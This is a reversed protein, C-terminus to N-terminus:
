QETKINNKRYRIKKIEITNKMYELDPMYYKPANEAYDIYTCNRDIKSYFAQKKIGLIKLASARNCWYEYGKLTYNASSNIPQIHHHYKELYENTSVASYYVRLETTDDAFVYRKFVQALTNFDINFIKALDNKTLTCDPDDRMNENKARIQMAHMGTIPRTEEYRGDITKNPNEDVVYNIARSSKYDYQSSPFQSYLFSCYQTLAAKEQAMSKQEYVIHLAVDRPSEIKNENIINLLKAIFKFRENDVFHPYTYSSDDRSLYSHNYINLGFEQTYTYLYRLNISCIYYDKENHFLYVKVTQNGDVNVNNNPYIFESIKAFYELAYGITVRDLYYEKNSYEYYKALEPLINESLNGWDKNSIKNIRRVYDDITSPKYKGEQETLWNRFDARLDRM